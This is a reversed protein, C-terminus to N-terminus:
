KLLPHSSSSRSLDKYVKKLLAVVSHSNIIETTRIVLLKTKNKGSNDPDDLAEAIDSIDKDTLELRIM